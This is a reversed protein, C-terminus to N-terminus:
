PYVVFTWKLTKTESESLAFAKHLMIAQKTIVMCLKELIARWFHM